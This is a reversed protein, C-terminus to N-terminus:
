EDLITEIGSFSLDPDLLRLARDALRLLHMRSGPNQFRGAREIWDRTQLVEARLATRASLTRAHRRDNNRILVPSTHAFLPLSHYLGSSHSSLCRAAVWGGGPLVHEIELTAACPIGSPSAEAIVEGNALLQLCDIPELCRASVTIQLLSGEPASQITGGPSDSQRSWVSLYLLPGNTVISRGAAAAGLWNKYTFVREGRDAAGAWWWPQTYTRVTGLAVRNSDKGSGGILWFATPLRADFLRYLAPLFSQSRERADIEVLQVKGLILAILAEGGPLSLEPQYADGWVVVGEKRQCQDAWDCLSWDDSSDPGGFSLPHVARHCNLLGLRGLVPHTNYTNVVVIYNDKGLAAKEGSFADLNPVTSYLRGIKSSIDQTTALLNVVNLGEAEAELLASHPTLFHCRSDGSYWGEQSPDIWREIRFRLAVQGTGLTVTERIPRYELGKTIEVQLPVGTPLQLECSGNIYYYRDKGLLVQGGVAEGQGLPFEAFRGFPPHSEGNPSSVRLRVPTPKGTGADTVRLHVNLVGNV